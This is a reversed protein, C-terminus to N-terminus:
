FWLLDGPTEAGLIRGPSRVRRHLMGAGARETNSVQNRARFTQIPAAALSQNVSVKM